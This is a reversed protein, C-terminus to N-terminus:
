YHTGLVCTCSPMELLSLPSLLLGDPEPAVLSVQLSSCLVAAQAKPFRGTHPLALPSYIIHGWYRTM